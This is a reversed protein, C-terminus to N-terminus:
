RSSGRRRCRSPASTGDTHADTFLNLSSGAQEFALWFVANFLMYVFITITPGREEPALRGVFRVTWAVAAAALVLTV